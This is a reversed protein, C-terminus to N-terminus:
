SLLNLQDSPGSKRQNKWPGSVAKKDAARRVTKESVDLEKALQKANDGQWNRSVWKQVFNKQWYKPIYLSQGSFANLLKLTNEVGILRAMHQIEETPMEDPTLGALLERNIV